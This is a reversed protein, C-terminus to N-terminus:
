YHAALSRIDPWGYGGHFDGNPAFLREAGMRKM